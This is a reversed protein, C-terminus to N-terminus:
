ESNHFLRRNKLNTDFNATKSKMGDIQKAHGIEFDSKFTWLLGVLISRPADAYANRTRSFYVSVFVFQWLIILIAIDTAVFSAFNCWFYSNTQLSM